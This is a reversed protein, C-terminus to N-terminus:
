PTPVLEVITETDPQIVILTTGIPQQTAQRLTTLKAQGAPLNSIDGLGLSSTSTLSRDPVFGPAFYTPGDGTPSASVVVGPVRNLVQRCDYTEFGVTGFGPDSSRLRSLSNLAALLFAYHRSHTLTWEALFFHTKLYSQEPPPIVEFYSSVGLPNRDLDLVVNGTEDSSAEDFPMPCPDLGPADQSDLVRVADLQPCMKVTFGRGLAVGDDRRV